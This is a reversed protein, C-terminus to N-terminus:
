LPKGTYSITPAPAVRSAIVRRMLAEESESLRASTFVDIVPVWESEAEKQGIARPPRASSSSPPASASVSAAAARSSPSCPLPAPEGPEGSEGAPRAAVAAGRDRVAAGLM